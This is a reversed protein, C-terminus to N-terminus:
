LVINGTNPIVQIARDDYLLLMGPDKEATVKLEVGLHKKCWWKIQEKQLKVEFDGNVSAVRATLIRVERGSAIYKQLLEVMQPIPEGIGGDWEGEGITALTGDLDFGVWSTLKGGSM